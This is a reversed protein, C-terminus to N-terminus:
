RANFLLVNEKTAVVYLECLFSYQHVFVSDHSFSETSDKTCELDVKLLLLNVHNKNQIIKDAEWMRTSSNQSTTQLYICLERLVFQVIKFKLM